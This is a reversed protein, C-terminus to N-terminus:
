FNFKSGPQQIPPKQPTLTSGENSGTTAKEATIAAVVCLGLIILGIVGYFVKWFM